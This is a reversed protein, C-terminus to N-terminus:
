RARGVGRERPFLGRGGHLARSANHKRGWAGAEDPGAIRGADDPRSMKQHSRRSLPRQKAQRLPRADRARLFPAGPPWSRWFDCPPHGIFTRELESADSTNKAAQESFAVNRIAIAPSREVASRRECALGPDLM